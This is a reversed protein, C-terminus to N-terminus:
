RKKLLLLQSIVLGVLSIALLLTGVANVEPKVGVRVMSYIQLPLIEFNAGTNFTSVVVDDLSLTFALVWGALVAPLIIPLLVTRIMTFESAGLDRAAELVSNDMSSLRASVTIVVFPLCFTIHALLLTIFGLEIGIILFLALLSIALVIEPSMMLVFLLSQLVSKGKFDYRQFSLATLGGIVTTVTAAVVALLVSNIAAQIMAENSFLEHYWHLSFGGWHYGIKSANFSFVVMVMIPAFMILYMLTLYLRSLWKM